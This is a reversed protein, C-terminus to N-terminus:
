QLYLRLSDSQPGAALTELGGAKQRGQGAKRRTTEKSTGSRQRSVKPAEPISARGSAGPPQSPAEGQDSPTPDAGATDRQEASNIARGHIKMTVKRRTRAVGGSRRFTSSTSKTSLRTLQGTFS